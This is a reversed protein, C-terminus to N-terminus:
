NSEYKALKARAKWLAEVTAYLSQAIHEADWIEEIPHERTKSTLADAVMRTHRSAGCTNHPFNNARNVRRRMNEIKWSPHLNM